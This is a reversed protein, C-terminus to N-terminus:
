GCSGSCRIAPSCSTAKWTRRTLRREPLVPKPPAARTMVVFEVASGVSRGRRAAGGGLAAARGRRCGGSPRRSRGRRTRTRRSATRVIAPPGGVATGPSVAASHLQPLVGCRPLCSRRAIPQQLM